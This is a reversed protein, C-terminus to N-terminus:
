SWKLTKGHFAANAEQAADKCKVSCLVVLGVSGLSVGFGGGDIPFLLFIEGCACVCVCM